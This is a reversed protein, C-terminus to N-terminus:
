ESQNFGQTTFKELGPCGYPIGDETVEFDFYLGMESPLAMEDLGSIFRYSECGGGHTWDYNVKIQFLLSVLYLLQSQDKM